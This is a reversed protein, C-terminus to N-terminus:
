HSERVTPAFRIKYQKYGNKKPLQWKILLLKVVFQVVSYINSNM